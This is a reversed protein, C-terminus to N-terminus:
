TTPTTHCHDSQPINIAQNSLNAAQVAIADFSCRVLAHENNIKTPFSISLSSPGNIATFAQADENLGQTLINLVQQSDSANSTVTDISQSAENANDYLDYHYSIAGGNVNQTNVNVKLTANAASISAIILGATGLIAITKKM